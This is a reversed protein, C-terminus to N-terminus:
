YVSFSFFLALSLGSTSPNLPSYRSNPVLHDLSTLHPKNGAIPISPHQSVQTPVLIHQHLSFSCQSPSIQLLSLFNPLPFSPLFRPRFRTLFSLPRKAPPVPQLSSPQCIPQRLIPFDKNLISPQCVLIYMKKHTHLLIESCIPDGESPSLGQSFISVYSLM